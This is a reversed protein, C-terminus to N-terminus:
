LSHALGKYYSRAQALAERGKRTTSYVRKRGSRELSVLGSKRLSYLVRYATVNGPTFGFREKVLRRIVYAHCPRDKIISLIYPWLCGTTNNKMLKRIHRM